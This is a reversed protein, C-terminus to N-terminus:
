PLNEDEQLKPYSLVYLAVVIIIRDLDQEQASETCGVAHIGSVYTDAISSSRQFAAFSYGPCSSTALVM